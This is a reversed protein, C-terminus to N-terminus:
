ARARLAGKSNRWERLGLVVINDERRKNEEVIFSTRCYFFTKIARVGSWEVGSGGNQFSALSVLGASVEQSGCNKRGDHCACGALRIKGPSFNPYVRVFFLKPCPVVVTSSCMITLKEDFDRSM